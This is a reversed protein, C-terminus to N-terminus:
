LNSGINVKDTLGVYTWSRKGNKYVMLVPLANIELEDRVEKSKEIDVKIVEIKDKNEDEIQKVIPKLKPCVMCWDAHFYILVTKKSSSILKNFQVLTYTDEEDQLISNNKNLFFASAVFSVVLLVFIFVKNM